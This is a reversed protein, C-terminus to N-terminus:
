PCFKASPFHNFPRARMLILQNSVTQFWSILELSPIMLWLCEKKTSLTPCIHVNFIHVNPATARKSKNANTKANRASLSIRRWKDSSHINSHQNYVSDLWGLWRMWTDWISSKSLWTVYPPLGPPLHPFLLSWLHSRPKGSSAAPNQSHPFILLSWCFQARWLSKRTGFSSRLALRRWQRGRQVVEMQRPCMRRNPRRLHHDCCFSEVWWHYLGSWGTVPCLISLQTLTEWQVIPVLQLSWWLSLM